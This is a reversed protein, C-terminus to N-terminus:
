YKINNGPKLHHRGNDLTVKEWTEQGEGRNGGSSTAGANIDVVTDMGSQADGQGELQVESEVYSQTDGQADSEVESDEEDSIM